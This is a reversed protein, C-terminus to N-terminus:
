RAITKHPSLSTPALVSSLEATVTQGEAQTTWTLLTSTPCQFCVSVFRSSSPRKMICTNEGQILSHQQHHIKDEHRLVNIVCAFRFSHQQPPEASNEKYTDTDADDDSFGDILWAGRVEKQVASKKERKTIRWKSEALVKISLIFFWCYMSWTSLVCLVVSVWMTMLMYLLWWENCFLGVFQWHWPWLLTTLGPVSLM